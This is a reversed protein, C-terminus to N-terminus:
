KRIVNLTPRKIIANYSPSMKVVLLQASSTVHRLKDKFWVLLTIVGKVEILQNNFGYIPRDVKYLASPRDRLEQFYHYYLINLSSITDMFFREVYDDDIKM